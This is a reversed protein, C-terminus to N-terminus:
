FGALGSGLFFSQNGQGFRAKDLVQVSGWPCKKNHQGWGRFRRARTSEAAGAPAKRMEM